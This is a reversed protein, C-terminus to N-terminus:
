ADPEVTEAVEPQTLEDLRTVLAEPDTVPVDCVFDRCVYATAEGKPPTMATTWRAVAALGDRHTATVPVVVASPLFRSALAHRLRSAAPGDADAAVVIEIPPLMATSAAALMLPAVRPHARLRDGWATLVREAKAQYEARGTLRALTLLNMVAVSSAAPEAGDYEELQRLLVTPDEGTTAHWGQDDAAGFLRDLSEHLRVAWSLWQPDGDVQFLELLGWAVYAYDEAFADIGATGAAYRRLLRGTEANWMRDRVFAACRQAVQLHHAGTGGVGEGLADGPALVRGARACAAMM